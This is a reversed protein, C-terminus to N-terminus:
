FFKVGFYYCLVRNLMINCLRRCIYLLGSHNIRRRGEVLNRNKCKVWPSFLELRFKSLQFCGQQTVSNTNWRGLESFTDSENPHLLIFSTFFSVFWCGHLHQGEVDWGASIRELPIATLAKFAPTLVDGGRRGKQWNRKHIPSLPTSRQQPRSNWEGRLSAVFNHLVVEWFYVRKKVSKRM